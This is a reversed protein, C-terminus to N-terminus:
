NQLYLGLILMSIIFIFTGCGFYKSIHIQEKYICLNKCMSLTEQKDEHIFNEEDFHLQQCGLFMCLLISILFILIIIYPKYPDKYKSILIYVIMVNISIDRIHDYYDGFVTVMDYKRAYHGDICDFYYYLWFFIFSLLYNDKILFYISTLGFILGITTLLNPSIINDHNEKLYQSNIDVMHLIYDDIPNELSSHIKRGNKSHM